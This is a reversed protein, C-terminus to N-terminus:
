REQRTEINLDNIARSWVGRIEVEHPHSRDHTTVDMTYGLGVAQHRHYAEEIAHLVTHDEARVSRGSLHPDLYFVGNGFLSCRMAIYDHSLVVQDLSSIYGVVLHNRKGTEDIHDSITRITPPLATEGYTLYCYSLGKRFLQFFHRLSDVTPRLRLRKVYKDNSIERCLSKLRSNRALLRDIGEISNQVM